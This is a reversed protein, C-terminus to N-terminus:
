PALARAGTGLSGGSMQLRRHLCASRAPRRSSDGIPTGLCGPDLDHCSRLDPPKLGRCPVVEATCVGDAPQRAHAVVAPHFVDVHYVVFALWALAASRSPMRRLRFCLLM